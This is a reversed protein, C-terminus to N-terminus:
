LSVFPSDSDASAMERSVLHETANEKEVTGERKLSEACSLFWTRPVRTCIGTTEKCTEGHHSMMMPYAGYSSASPTPQDESEDSSDSSDDSM